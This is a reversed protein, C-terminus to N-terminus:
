SQAAGPGDGPMQDCHTHRGTKSLPVAPMPPVDLERARSMMMTVALCGRDGQRTNAYAVALLYYVDWNADACLWRETDRETNRPRGESHM